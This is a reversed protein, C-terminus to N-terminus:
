TAKARRCNALRSPRVRPVCFGSRLKHGGYANQLARNRTRASEHLTLCRSSWSLWPDIDLSGKARSVMSRGWRPLPWHCVFDQSLEPFAARAATVSHVIDKAHGPPALYEHVIPQGSFQQGVGLGAYDTAVVVYGQLAIQYPAESHQWLDKHHSPAANADLGSAGHAWAVVPYGDPQSRPSYPWLVFASVPVKSGRLTESQYVFRSLACSTPLSYKATDVNKELKLLTGPPSDLAEQPPNYCTDNAASGNTWNSREFALSDTIDNPLGDM